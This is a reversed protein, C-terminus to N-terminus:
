ACWWASRRWRTARWGNPLACRCRRCRRCTPSRRPSPRSSRTPSRSARGRRRARGLGRRHPDAARVAGARLRRPRAEIGDPLLYDYTQDLAVPLLVPVRGNAAAASQRVNMWSPLCAKCFRCGPVLLLWAFRNFLRLRFQLRVSPTALGCTPAAMFNKTSVASTASILSSAAVPSTSPTVVLGVKTALAPRLKRSITASIQSSTGPGTLASTAAVSRSPMSLSPRASALIALLTVTFTGSVQSPRLAHLASM